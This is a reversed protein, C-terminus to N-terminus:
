QPQCRSCQHHSISSPTSTFIDTPSRHGSLPLSPFHPLTLPLTKPNPPSLYPTAFAGKWSCQLTFHLVWVLVIAMILQSHHTAERLHRSGAQLRRWLPLLPWHSPAPTALPLRLSLSALHTDSPSQPLPTVSASLMCLQGIPALLRKPHVPTLYIFLCSLFHSCIPNTLVSFLATTCFEEKNLIEM